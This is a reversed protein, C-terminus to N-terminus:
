RVRDSLENIALYISSRSVLMEKMAEACAARSGLVKVLDQRDVNALDAMNEVEGVQDYSRSGPFQVQVGIKDQLNTLNQGSRGILAKHQQAPISVGLVVRDGLEAAITELETKL